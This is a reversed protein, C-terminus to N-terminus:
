LNVTVPPWLPRNWVPVESCVCLQEAAETVRCIILLIYILRLHIMLHTLDEDEASKVKEKM